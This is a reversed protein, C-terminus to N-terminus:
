GQFGQKQRFQRWAAPNQAIKALEVQDPLDDDSSAAQQQSVGRGAADAAGRDAKRAGALKRDLDKAIGDRVKQWREPNEEKGDFAEIIRDDKQAMGRLAAELLDPDIGKLGDSYAQIAEVESRVAADTASQVERQRSNRVYGQVENWDSAKVQITDDSGTATKTEAQATKKAGEGEALLTDLDIDQGSDNEGAAQQERAITEQDNVEETM